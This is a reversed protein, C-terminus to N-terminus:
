QGDNIWRPYADILPKTLNVLSELSAVLTTLLVARADLREKLLAIEEQQKRVVAAMDGPRGAGMADVEEQLSRVNAAVNRLQSLGDM